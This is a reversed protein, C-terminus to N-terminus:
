RTRELPWKSYFCTNREKSFQCFKKFNSLYENELLLWSLWRVRRSDRRAPAQNWVPFFIQRQFQRPTSTIKCLFQLVFHLFKTLKKARKVQVSQRFINCIVMMGSVGGDSSLWGRIIGSVGDGTLSPDVTSAVHPYTDVFLRRYTRPRAVVARTLHMRLRACKFTEAAADATRATATAAWFSILLRHLEAALPLMSVNTFVIICRFQNKERMQLEANGSM